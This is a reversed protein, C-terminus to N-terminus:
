IELNTARLFGSLLMPNGYEATLPDVLVIYTPSEADIIVDGELFYHRIMETPSLFSGSVHTVAGAEAAAELVAENSSLVITVDIKGNELEEDDENNPYDAIAQICRDLMTIGHEDPAIIAGFRDASPVHDAIVAYVFEDNNM